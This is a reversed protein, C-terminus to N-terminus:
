SPFSAARCKWCLQLQEPSKYSSNLEMNCGLCQLGVPHMLLSPEGQQPVFSTHVNFEVRENLRLQKVGPSGDLICEVCRIDVRDPDSLLRCIM